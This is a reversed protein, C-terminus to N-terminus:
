AVGWLKAVIIFGVALAMGNLVRAITAAVVPVWPHAPVPKPAYVREWVRRMAM